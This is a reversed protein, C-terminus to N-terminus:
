QRTDFVYSNTNVNMVDFVIVICSLLALASFCHSPVHDFHGDIFTQMAIVYVIVFDSILRFM